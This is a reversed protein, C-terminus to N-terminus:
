PQGFIFWEPALRPRDSWLPAFVLSRRINANVLFNAGTMAAAASTPPIDVRASAPTPSRSTAGVLIM